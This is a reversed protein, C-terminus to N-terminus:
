GRALAPAPRGGGAVEEEGGLDREWGGVASRYGM